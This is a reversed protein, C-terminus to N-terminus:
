QERRYFRVQGSNEDVESSIQAKANTNSDGSHMLGFIKAFLEMKRIDPETRSRHSIRALTILLNSKYARNIALELVRNFNQDNLLYTVLTRSDTCIKRAICCLEPRQDKGLYDLILEIAQYQKDKLLPLGKCHKELIQKIEKPDTPVYAPDKALPLLPAKKKRKKYKHRKTLHPNKQDM